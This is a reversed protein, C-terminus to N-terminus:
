MHIINATVNAAHKQALVYYPSLNHYFTEVELTKM